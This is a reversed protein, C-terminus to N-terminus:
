AHALLPLMHPTSSLAQLIDLILQMVQMRNILDPQAAYELLRYEGVLAEYEAVTLNFDDGEDFTVMYFEGSDRVFIYIAGSAPEEEVAQLLLIGRPMQSIRPAVARREETCAVDLFIRLARDPHPEPLVIGIEQANFMRQFRMQGRSKSTGNHM